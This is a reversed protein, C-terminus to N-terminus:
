PLGGQNPVLPHIMRFQLALRTLLRWIEFGQSLFFFAPFAKQKAFLGFGFFFDTEIILNRTEKRENLLFLNLYWNPRLLDGSIYRNFIDEDQTNYILQRYLEVTLLM